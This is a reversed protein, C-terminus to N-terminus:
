RRVGAGRGDILREVESLTAFSSDGVTTMTLAGHAVGCRLSWETGRETLLGYLVGAAFADGGGVRDLIELNLMEPAAYM